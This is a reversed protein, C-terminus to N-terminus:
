SRFDAEVKPWEDHLEDEILRGKADHDYNFGWPIFPKAEGERVFGHQDHAVFIRSLEGAAATPATALFIAFAITRMRHLPQNGFLAIARAFRETLGRRQRAEI